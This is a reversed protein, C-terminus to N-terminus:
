CLSKTALSELRSISQSNASESGGSDYSSFPGMGQLFPLVKYLLPFTFNVFGPM